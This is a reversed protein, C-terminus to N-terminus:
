KSSRMNLRMSFPIGPFDQPPFKLWLFYPRRFDGWVWFLRRLWFCWQNSRGLLRRWSLFTAECIILCFNRGSSKRPRWTDGKSAIRRTVPLTARKSSRCCGPRLLKAPSNRRTNSAAPILSTKYLISDEFIRTSRDWALSTGCRDPM